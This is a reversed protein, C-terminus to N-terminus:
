KDDNSDNTTSSLRLKNTYFSKFEELLEAESLDEIQKSATDNQSTNTNDQKAEMQKSQIARLMSRANNPFKNFSSSSSSSSASSNNNKRKRDPTSSRSSSDDGKCMREFHNLKNCKRCTKGQAPCTTKHPYEYGCLFCTNTRQRQRNINNNNTIVNIGGNNRRAAMANSTTLKLHHAKHWLLLADLTVTEDLGKLRVDDDTTNNYIVSLVQTAIQDGQHGAAVALTKLRHAFDMLNENDLQLCSRFNVDAVRPNVNAFRTDLLAVLQVYNLADEAANNIEVIKPGGLVMLYGHAVLTTEALIIPPGVQGTIVVYGIRNITFFFELRQKWLPWDVHASEQRYVFHDMTISAM